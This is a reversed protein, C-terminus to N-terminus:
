DISNIAGVRREALDKAIKRYIPLDVQYQEALRLVEYILGDIESQKGAAIDRQMSTTMNESLSDIIALNKKVIDEEFRIGMAEALLDIEHILGAFCDRIEGPKQIPGAPVDYYLGCAGQASIYSFKSFADREINDSLVGTIESEILDKEIERLRLGIADTGGTVQGLTDSNEAPKNRERDAKRLGFIVRLIDGNMKIVGPEGIESAVYICGDTVLSEPFYPQLKAGTGYINLIPIIITNQDAIEQLKPIVNELSYGKVCVFIVDAKENYEELTCAKCREIVFEDKPRIVKLGRERIANLHAGRAIFTVDKGARALYAGIAGGTGGTGVILYRRM